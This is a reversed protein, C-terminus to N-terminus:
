YENKNFRRKKTVIEIFDLEKVETLHYIGGKCKNCKYVTMKAQYKRSLHRALRWASDKSKHKRKKCKKPM